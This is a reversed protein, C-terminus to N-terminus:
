SGATLAAQLDDTLEGLEGGRHHRSPLRRLVDRVEQSAHEVAWRFLGDGAAPDEPQSRRLAVIAYAPAGVAHAAMHAVAVAHGAARAAAVGAPDDMSRAAAHAEAALRRAVAIRLEGGAFSRAGEIAARPRHDEPSVTEFLHLAREACAAAWRALVRREDESLTLTGPERAMLTVEECGRTDRGGHGTSRGRWRRLWRCLIGVWPAGTTLGRTEHGSWTPGTRRPSRGPPAPLGHHNCAESRIAEVWNATIVPVTTAMWRAQSGEPGTSPGSCMGNSTM